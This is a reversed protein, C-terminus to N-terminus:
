AIFFGRVKKLCYPLSDIFDQKTKEIWAVLNEQWDTIIKKADTKEGTSEVTVDGGNNLYDSLLKDPDLGDPLFVFSKDFKVPNFDNTDCGQIGVSDHPFEIYTDGKREEHVCSAVASFEHKNGELDIVYGSFTDMYLNNTWDDEPAHTAQYRYMEEPNNDVPAQRPDLDLFVVKQVFDTLTKPSDEYYGLDEDEVQSRKAILDVSVRLSMNLATFVKEISEIKVGSTFNLVRQIEKDGIKALRKVDAPKLDREWITNNLAIRAQTIAYVPVGHYERKVSVPAPISEGARRYFIELGNLLADLIQEDKPTEPFVVPAIRPLEPFSLTFGELSYTYEM